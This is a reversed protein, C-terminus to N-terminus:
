VKAYTLVQALTKKLNKAANTNKARKTSIEMQAKAIQARLDDVKITALDKKKM